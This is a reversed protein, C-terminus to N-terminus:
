TFVGLAGTVASCDLESVEQVEDEENTILEEWSIGWYFMELVGGLDDKGQFVLLVCVSFFGDRVESRLRCCGARNSRADVYGEVYVFM